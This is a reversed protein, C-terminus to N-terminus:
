AYLMNHLYAFLLHLFLSLLSLRCVRFIDIQKSPCSRARWRLCM